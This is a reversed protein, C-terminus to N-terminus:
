QINGGRHCQCLRDSESAGLVGSCSTLAAMGLGTLRGRAFYREMMLDFVSVGVGVCPTLCWMSVPLWQGTNALGHRSAGSLGLIAPTLFFSSCAPILLHDFEAQADGRCMTGLLVAGPPRTTVVTAEVGDCGRVSVGRWVDLGQGFAQM